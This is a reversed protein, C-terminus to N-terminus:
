FPKDDMSLSDELCEFEIDTNEQAVQHQDTVAVSHHCSSSHITLLGHKVIIMNECHITGTSDSWSQQVVHGECSILVSQGTERWNQEALVAEYGQLKIKREHYGCDPDYVIVTAIYAAPMSLGTRAHIAEPFFRHGSPDGTWCQQVKAWIYGKPSIKELIIGENIPGNQAIQGQGSFKKENEKFYNLAHM